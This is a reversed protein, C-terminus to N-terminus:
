FLIFGAKVTHQNIGIINKSTTVASFERDAFTESISNSLTDNSLIMTIEIIEDGCM